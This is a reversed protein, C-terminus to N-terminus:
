ENLKGQQELVSLFYPWQKRWWPWDHAVDSGWFDFWGPINKAVFADQLRSTDYIHPSEWAGQGVCIIFDNQRYQELFWPDSLNWLFDIPSNEYVAHDDGFDGTFYRADYVGSMAVCAGFVDPHRLSFNVAHFAGMSAGATMLKGQWPSEHRVLPVLEHIIYRDYGNHAQGKDSPSKWDALWSDSDFSSVTYIILKGRNIFDAAAEVMGFDGFEHQSGGSSPFVIVPRGAHGYKNFHMERGLAGSYHSRSEFNM